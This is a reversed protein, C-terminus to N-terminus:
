SGSLRDSESTGKKLKEHPKHPMALARKLAEDRRKVAEDRPLEDPPYDHDGTM